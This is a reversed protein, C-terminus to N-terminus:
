DRASVSLAASGEANSTEARAVRLATLVSGLVFGLAYLHLGRVRGLVPLVLRGDHFHQCIPRGAFPIDWVWLSLPIFAIFFPLAALRLWRGIRAHEGLRYTILVAIIAWPIAPNRLLLERITTPSYDSGFLNLICNPRFFVAHHLVAFYPIFLGASQAVWARDPLSGNAM